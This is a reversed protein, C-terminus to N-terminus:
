QNCILQEVLQALGARRPSAIKTWARSAPCERSMTRAHCSATGAQRWRKRSISPSRRNIPRTHYDLWYRPQQERRLRTAADFGLERVQDRRRLARTTEDLEGAGCTRSYATRLDEAYAELRPEVRSWTEDAFALGTGRFAAEIRTGHEASWPDPTTEACAWVGRQEELAGYAYPGGLALAAVGVAAFWGRRAPSPELARAVADMSKWRDTPDRALGRDLVRRVRRPVSAGALDLLEALSLCFAYQDSAATAPARSRIEPAWYNPTGVELTCGDSVPRLTVRGSGSISGDRAPEPLPALRALGFDAIRAIGDDGMLINPPKVDRHVLGRAHAAALGRAAQVFAHIIERAAPRKETVWRDLRAGAVLGMVLGVRSDLEVVEHVTVVNPHDLQALARAERLVTRAEEEGRTRLLKLAVKRDLTPDYAAYVTGFAGAGLHELLVFRGIRDPESEIDLLERRVRALALGRRRSETLPTVM